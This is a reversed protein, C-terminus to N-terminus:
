EEPRTSVIVRSPRVVRDHLQFGTEAVAVVTNPPFEDTVQQSIAEHLNPDFPEHFAAIERCDYKALVGQFQEAVMRFGERLAAGHQTKEAAEIARNMNDLVPLLDSMLPMNAYRRDEDAQRSIRKKFNEMEARCRLAHDKARELEEQLSALEDISRESDAQLDDPRDDTRADSAPQGKPVSDDQFPHGDGAADAQPNHSSPPRHKPNEKAM